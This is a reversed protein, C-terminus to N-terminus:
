LSAATRSRGERERFRRASKSRVRPQRRRCCRPKARASRFRESPYARSQRNCSTTSLACVLRVASLAKLAGCFADRRLEVIRPDRRRQPQRATRQSDGGHALRAAARRPPQLRVHATFDRATRISYLRRLRKHNMEIGERKLLIKLRRWGFRPREQAVCRLRDRVLEDDPTTCSKYRATPRPCGALHCAQRESLGEVQLARM